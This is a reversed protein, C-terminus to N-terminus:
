FSLGQMTPRRADEELKWVHRQQDTSAAGGDEPSDTEAARLTPRVGLSACLAKYRSRIQRQLKAMDIEDAAGSAVAAASQNTRPFQSILDLLHKIHHAARRCRHRTLNPPLSCDAPRRVPRQTWARRIDGALDHCLGRLVRDRGM